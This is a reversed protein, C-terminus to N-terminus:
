CNPVQSNKLFSRSERCSIMCKLCGSGKDDKEGMPAKKTNWWQGNIARSVPYLSMLECQMNRLNHLDESIESRPM